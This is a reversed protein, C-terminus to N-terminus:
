VCHKCVLLTHKPHCTCLHKYKDFYVRHSSFSISIISQVIETYGITQWECDYCIIYLFLIPSILLYLFVGCLWM